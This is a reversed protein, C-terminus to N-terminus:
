GLFSRILDPQCVEVVLQTILLNQACIEIHTHDVLLIFLYHMQYLSGSLSYGKIHRSLRSSSNQSDGFGLTSGLNEANFAFM